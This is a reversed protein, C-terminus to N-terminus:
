TTGAVAYHAAIRAASLASEYIAAHAVGGTLSTGLKLGIQLTPAAPATGAQVAGDLVGNIWVEMATGVGRKVMVVHYWNATGITLTTTTATLLAVGGLVPQLKGSLLQCIGWGNNPPDGIQFISQTDLTIVQPQWILELTFNSVVTSPVPNRTFSDAPVLKIMFDGLSAASAVRYTPAGFTATSGLGNGSSDVLSGSAEQCKWYLKPTDALIAAALLAGSTSSAPTRKCAQPVLPTLTATRKASQAALPM